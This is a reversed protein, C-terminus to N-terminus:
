TFESWILYLLCSTGVYNWIPFCSKRLYQYHIEKFIVRCIFTTEETSLCISSQNKILEHHWIQLCIQLWIKAKFFNDFMHQAHLAWNYKTSTIHNDTSDARFYPQNSNILFKYQVKIPLINPVWLACIMNWESHM